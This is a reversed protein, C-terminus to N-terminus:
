RPTKKKTKSTQKTNLPPKRVRSYHVECPDRLIPKVMPSVVCLDQSEKREQGTRGDGPLSEQRQM